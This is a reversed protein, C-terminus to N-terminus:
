PRPDNPSSPYSSPNPAAYIPPQPQSVQGYGPVPWSPSSEPVAILYILLVLGGFLLTCIFWGWQQQKGQTILAGIWAILGLVSAVFFLALAIVVRPIGIQYLLMWNFLLAIAAVGLFLLSLVYLLIITKKRM